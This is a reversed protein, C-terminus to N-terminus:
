WDKGILSESSHSETSDIIGSSQVSQVDGASPPRGVEVPEDDLRETRGDDIQSVEEWDDESREDSKMSIDGSPRGKHGTDAKFRKADPQGELAPDVTPPDPLRAALLEPSPSSEGDDQAQPDTEQDSSRPVDQDVPPFFLPISEEYAAEDAAEFNCFIVRELKGISEPRELFRRTEDLATRAAERKPYGYVGTSLASFAISKMNNEVALELSRRYCSRLLNEPQKPGSRRELGYIPGVAHIVKKCPLEYASTIKADGTDCGGLTRCENLLDPGAAAHIAGDVGGGGRLTENAANVICDVDHLKTIDNRILSITDNFTKSPSARPSSAPVLRRLRYLLSVTPIESIPVAM